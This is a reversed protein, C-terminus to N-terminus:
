VCMVVTRRKRESRVDCREGGKEREPEREGETERGKTHKIGEHMAKAKSEKIYESGIDAERREKGQNARDAHRIM